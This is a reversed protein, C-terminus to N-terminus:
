RGPAPAIVQSQLVVGLDGRRDCLRTRCNGFGLPQTFTRAEMGLWPDDSAPLRHLQVTLDPNVFTWRTTDLASGLGHGADACILVRELPRTVEGEILPVRPRMWGAIDGSGFEGRALRVEIATHYGVAHQFFPFEFPTCEGVPPLREGPDPLRTPLDLEAVRIRVAIAVALQQDGSVLAAAIRHVTKGASLVETVVELPAAIPIPRLLEITMRATFMAPARDGDLQEIARALLATPPGGHQHDNSWPGRTLESAFLRDEGRAGRERTYFWGNPDAM